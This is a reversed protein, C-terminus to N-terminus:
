SQRPYLMINVTFLGDKTLIEMNGNYREVTSAVSPLGIGHGPNPDRTKPLHDQIKGVYPNDVTLGLMNDSLMGSIVNIRRKEEPVQATAKMANELLNGLMACFDVEPIPLDKPLRLDWEMVTQQTKALSDYHSAVADVAMNACYPTYGKQLVESFQKVYDKLDDIQNAAALESIVRIHQRFDHRLTRTEDMYSRLEDYRKQEMNLMSNEQRVRASENLQVSTWWYLHYLMFVAGLFLVSFIISVTRTRNDRLIALDPPNIYYLLGCLGLLVIDLYIWSRDLREEQLLYPIKVRLTKYFLLGVVLTVFLCTVGGSITFPGDDPEAPVRLYVTFVTSFLCLLFANLFCFMKKVMPLNVSISYIELCLVCLPLLVFSTQVDYYVCVAAGAAILSGLLVCTVIRLQWKGYRLNNRVPLYAFLAGPLVIAIELAHRLLLIRNM